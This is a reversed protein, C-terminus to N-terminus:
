AGAPIAAPIQAAPLKAGSAFATVLDFYADIRQRDDDAVRPERRASSKAAELAEHVRAALADVDGNPFLITGPPREVVDSAVAPVGLYLAERISNADGDTATPRVFVDAQALLPILPGAQTHFLVQDGVGLDRARARLKDIYASEDPHHDWFCIVVALNPFDAKLRGALEVLQDLGYLDVGAYWDVKGNAAIIPRRGEVFRWIDDALLGREAEAPQPPLFGPAWHVRRANVGLEVTTRVLDRNVCVVADMRKLTWRCLIRRWWSRRTWDILWANRLRLMVRKGRLRAMLAGIVWASLRGSFLYVAPERGAFLYKFLWTRRRSYVGIVKRGDGVDSTANYVVYPIGRRDLQGCLRQM